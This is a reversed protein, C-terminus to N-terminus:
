LVDCVAEVVQDDGAPVAILADKRDIRAIIIAHARLLHRLRDGAVVDLEEAAIRDEVDQVADLQRKDLVETRAPDTGDAERGVESCVYGVPARVDVLRFGFEVVYGADTVFVPVAYQPAARLAAALDPLKALGARDSVPRG